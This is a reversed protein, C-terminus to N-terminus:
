ALFKGQPPKPGQEIQSAYWRMIAGQIFLVGALVAWQALDSMTPYVGEMVAYWVVAGIFIAIVAKAKFFFSRAGWLILPLGLKELLLEMLCKIWLSTM